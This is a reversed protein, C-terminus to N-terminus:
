RMHGHEALLIPAQEVFLQIAQTFYLMFVCFPTKEKNILPGQKKECGSLELFHTPLGWIEVEVLVPGLNHSKKM